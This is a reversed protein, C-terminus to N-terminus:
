RAALGARHVEGTRVDVEILVNGGKRNAHSMLRYRWIGNWVQVPEAWEWGETEARSRAIEKANEVSVQTRVGCITRLLQIM